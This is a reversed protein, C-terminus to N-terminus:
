KCERDIRNMAASVGNLSYHDTTLTGRSSTGRVVMGLGRKMAGVLKNDEAKDSAWAGDGSTFLQMTTAGDITVNVRSGKKFPYGIITSVENRVKEGPRRTVMFYIPDRRVNKPESDVPQSVIYCVQGKNEKYTYAAWYQYKELLTPTQAVAVGPSLSKLGMAVIAMFTLMNRTNM